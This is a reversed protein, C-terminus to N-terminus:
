CSCFICFMCFKTVVQM